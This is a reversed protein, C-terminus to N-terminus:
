EHVDPGVGLLLQPAEPAALLQLMLQAARNNNLSNNAHPLYYTHFADAAAAYDRINEPYGDTSVGNRLLNITKRQTEEPLIPYTFSAVDGDTDYSEYIRGDEERIGIVRYNDETAERYRVENTTNDITREFSYLVKGAANILMVTEGTIVVGDGAPVIRLTGNIQGGEIHASVEKREEDRKVDSVVVARTQTQVTTRNENEPKQVDNNCGALSLLCMLVGVRKWKM